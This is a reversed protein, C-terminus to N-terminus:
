KSFKKRKTGPQIVEGIKLVKILKGLGSIQPRPNVKKLVDLANLWPTATM